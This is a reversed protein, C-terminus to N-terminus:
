KWVSAMINVIAGAGFVITLGIIGWVMHKQGTSRKEPDGAGRIFNVVGWVFLIFSALALLTIAPNIIERTVADLFKNVADM